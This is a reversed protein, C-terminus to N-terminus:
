IVEMKHIPNLSKCANGELEEIFFILDPRDYEKPFSKGNVLIEPTFNIGNKICWAYQKKLELIYNENEFCTGWKDFWSSPKDGRYINNMAQLCTREGETHYIELLRTTIKVIDSETNETTSNFRIKIKVNKKYRRLIEEIHEHAPKCHSCFPNTIITLEVSANPNGFIIEQSNEIYTDITPSKGLLTKFVEFNRKFKVGAIKEKRLDNVEVVLPQIFRQLLGIAIFVVGFVAFDKLLLENIFMTSLVSILAQVWLVVVISLCLFCWKKIVKAQYYLSYITIPITFISITFSLAPNSIQLITATFLAVFYFLSLGSLKIGKIVKAGKSNLVADCDKKDNLGSCFANGIATQLGLEQKVIVISILVGVGSLIIHLLGYISFNTTYFIFPILAGILVFGVYYIINNSNTNIHGQEPKEVAVIIGTFKKLFDQKTIKEKKNDVTFILYNSDKREVVVLSTEKNDKIQAIFCNPLEDLTKLDVPVEAAINEIMFHDLVGTIAHLSPYSPHSQIQFSLEERDFSIQNRKLLRQVSHILSDKM